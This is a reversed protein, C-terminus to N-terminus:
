FKLKWVYIEEFFLKQKELIEKKYNKWNINKTLSSTLLFIEGNKNLYNKASKLFKNIIESGNKGGTTSLQSNKPEKKDYPLYPPNFIILDFNLNEPIKNFLDSSICNFSLKKCLEVANSNIDNSYINQKKVGSNFLTKLQIGSGSGIELIKINSNKQLLKPIQKQLVKQMLYSDEAPSYISNM